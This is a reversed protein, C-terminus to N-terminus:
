STTCFYLPLASLCQGHLNGGRFQFAYKQSMRIDCICSYNTNITDFLSCFQRPIDKSGQLRLLGQMVSKLAYTTAAFDSTTFVGLSVNANSCPTLFHTSPLTALCLNKLPPIGVGCFGCHTRFQGPEYTNYSDTGDGLPSSSATVYKM